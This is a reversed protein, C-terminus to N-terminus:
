RHALIVNNATVSIFVIDTNEKEFSFKNLEGRCVTMTKKKFNLLFHLIFFM